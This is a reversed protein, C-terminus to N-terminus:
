QFINWLLSLQESKKETDKKMRYRRSWQIRFLILATTTQTKFIWIVWTVIYINIQYKIKWTITLCICPKKKLFFFFYLAQWNKEVVWVDGGHPRWLHIVRIRRMCRM